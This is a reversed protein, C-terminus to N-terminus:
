GLDAPSHIGKRFEQIAAKTDAMFGKDVDCDECAQGHACQELKHGDMNLTLGRGDDVMEICGMPCVYTCSGCGICSETAEDFPTVVVRDTGRDGLGIANACVLEACVRVCLGCLICKGDRKLGFRSSALGMRKGLAKMTEVDPCRALLLELTLRRSNQLAPTETLVELGEECPHNCSTVVKRRGRKVVEVVCLRCAGYSKLSRHYCLTPITIGLGRAAELLTTGKAVRAMKGNIILTVKM